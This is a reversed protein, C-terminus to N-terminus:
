RGAAVEINDIAREGFGLFHDASKGNQFGFGLFLGDLEAPDEHLYV